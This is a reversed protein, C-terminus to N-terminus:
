IQCGITVIHNFMYHSYDFKCNLEMIGLAATLENDTNVIYMDGDNNDKVIDVLTKKASDKKHIMVEIIPSPGSFVLSPAPLDPHVLLILALSEEESQGQMGLLHPPPHCPHVFALSM